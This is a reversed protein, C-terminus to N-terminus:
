RQKKRKKPPRPAAGTERTEIALEPAAGIPAPELSGESRRATRRRARVWEEETEKWSTLLPTAIFISSYTGAGIGIFLALAFERLTQAGLLYSGIFLLSGVPLLSTLSTNISRMLVQNMSLNAIETFTHKGRSEVINERMKDFVVVTDYLSYALITLVAIVTAPTVEFGVVSYVGATLLLDHFLAALAALAMKWEFRWSIFAGIVILFVVLAQIARRTIEAGFTPGVADVNTDGFDAGAIDALTGVFEDQTAPELAETQVLIRGSETLQVRAGGQGIASLGDRVESVTAGSRNEVDVITGGTFDISQDFQRILVSLLSISLLVGSVLYWRRRGRIFDFTTEGRYLLRVTSM